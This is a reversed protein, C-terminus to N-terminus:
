TKNRIIALRAFKFSGADAVNKSDHIKKNSFFAPAALNVSESTKKSIITRNGDAQDGNNGKSALLGM